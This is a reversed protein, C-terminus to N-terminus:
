AGRRGFGELPLFGELPPPPSPAWAGPTRFTSGGQPSVGGAREGSGFCYLCLPGRKAVQGLKSGPM